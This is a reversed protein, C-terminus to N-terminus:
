FGRDGVMIKIEVEITSSAFEFREAGIVLLISFFWEWDVPWM